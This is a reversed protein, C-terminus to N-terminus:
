ENQQDRQALYRRVFEANERVDQNPHQEARVLLPEAEKPDVFGKWLVQDVVGFGWAQIEEDADDLFEDIWPLARKDAIARLLQLAIRRVEIDPSSKYKEYCYQMASWPQIDSLVSRALESGPGSEIYYDVAERLNQEGILKELALKALATSGSDEGARLAGTEIAITKWDIM